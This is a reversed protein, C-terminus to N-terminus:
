DFLGRQPLPPPEFDKFNGEGRCRWVLEDSSDWTMWPLPVLHTPQSPPYWPPTNSGPPTYTYRYPWDVDPGRSLRKGSYTARPGINQERRLMNEGRVANGERPVAVGPNQQEWRAKDVPPTMDDAHVLEHGLVISPNAREAPIGSDFHWDPNWQVVGAIDPDM